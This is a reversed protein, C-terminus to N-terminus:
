VGLNRGKARMAKVAEDHLGSDHQPPETVVTKSIGAVAGAAAPETAEPAPLPVMLRRRAAQIITKQAQQALDDAALRVMELAMTEDMQADDWEARVATQDGTPACTLLLYRAGDPVTLTTM